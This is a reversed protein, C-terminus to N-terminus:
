DEFGGHERIAKKVEELKSKLKDKGSSANIQMYSKTYTAWEKPTIKATLGTTEEQWRIVKVVIKHWIERQLAKESVAPKPRPTVLKVPENLTFGTYEKKAKFVLTL